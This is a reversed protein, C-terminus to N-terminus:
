ARAGFKGRRSGLVVSAYFDRLRRYRAEFDCPAETELKRAVEGVLLQPLSDRKAAVESGLPDVIQFRFGGLPEIIRDNTHCELDYPVTPIYVALDAKIEGMYKIAEMKYAAMNWEYNNIIIFMVSIFLAEPNYHKVWKLLRGSACIVVDTRPDGIAEEAQEQLKNCALKGLKIYEREEKETMTIFKVQSFKKAFEDAILSIISGKNGYVVEAIEKQLKYMINLSGVIVIRKDIPVITSDAAVLVKKVQSEREKM